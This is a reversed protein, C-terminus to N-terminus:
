VELFERVLDWRDRYSALDPIDKFYVKPAGARGVGATTRGLPLAIVSRHSRVTEQRVDLTRPVNWEVGAAGRRRGLELGFVTKM